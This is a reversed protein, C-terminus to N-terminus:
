TPYAAGENFNISATYIEQNKQPDTGLEPWQNFQLSFGSGNGSLGCFESYTNYTQTGVSINGETYYGPPIATVSSQSYFGWPANYDTFDYIARLLPLKGEQTNKFFPKVGNLLKNVGQEPFYFPTKWSAEIRQGTTSPYSNYYDVLYTDDLQMISADEALAYTGIVPTFFPTMFWLAWAQYRRFYAFYVAENQYNAILGLNGFSTNKEFCQCVICDYKEYYFVHSCEPSLVGGGWVLSQWLTEIPKSPSNEYATQAGGLFLDRFWYAYRDTAVFVDGDIELFSVNSAPSPMNFDGVLNWNASGPYDGQYVLVKGASGFAVFVNSSIDGPQATVSFIRIVAQGEMFYSIPFAGGGSASSMNLAIAGVPSFEITSGDTVCMRGKYSCAAIIATATITNTTFSWSSFPSTVSRPARGGIVLDLSIHKCTTAKIQVAGGITGTNAGTSITYINGSTDIASNNSEDFWFTLPHSASGAARKVRVAPRVILHGNVIAYNTLERAYGSNFSIFPDLTNLGRLPAIVPVLSM